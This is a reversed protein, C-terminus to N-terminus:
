KEQSLLLNHVIERAQTRSIGLIRFHPESKMKPYATFFKAWVTTMLSLLILKANWNMIHVNFPYMNKLTNAYDILNKELKVEFNEDKVWDLFANLIIIREIARLGKNDEKTYFDLSVGKLYAISSDSRINEGTPAICNGQANRAFWMCTTVRCKKIEIDTLPCNM